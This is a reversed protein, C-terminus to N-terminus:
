RAVIVEDGVNPLGSLIRTGVTRGSQFRTPELRATEVLAENRTILTPATRTSASRVEILAVEEAADVFTVVGVPREAPAQLPDDKGEVREQGTPVTACGALLGILLLGFLRHLLFSIGPSFGRATDRRCFLLRRNM